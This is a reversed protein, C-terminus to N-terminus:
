REHQWFTVHVDALASLMRWSCNALSTTRGQRICANHPAWQILAVSM